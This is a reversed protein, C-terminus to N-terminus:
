PAHSPKTRTVSYNGRPEPVPLVEDAPMDFYATVEGVGGMMSLDFASEAMKRLPSALMLLNPFVLTDHPHGLRENARIKHKHTAPVPTAFFGQLVGGSVIEEEGVLNIGENVVFQGKEPHVAYILWGSKAAELQPMDASFVKSKSRDHMVPKERKGDESSDVDAQLNGSDTSEDSTTGM